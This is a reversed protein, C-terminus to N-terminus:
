PSIPTPLNKSAAKRNNSGSISRKVPSKEGDKPTIRLSDLQLVGPQTGDSAKLVYVLAFSCGRLILRLGEDLALRDFQITIKDKLLESGAVSLDTQRAIEQVVEQLPVDEAKVTLLDNDFQVSFVRQSWQTPTKAAKLVDEAQVINVLCLLVVVICVLQFTFFSSLKM